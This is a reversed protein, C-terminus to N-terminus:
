SAHSPSMTRNLLLRTTGGYRSERIRVSHADIHEPINQSASDCLSADFAADFSEKNM